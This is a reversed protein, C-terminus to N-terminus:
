VMEVLFDRALRVLVVMEPAPFIKAVVVVELVALTGMNHQLKLGMTDTEEVEEELQGYPQFLLLEMFELIQATEEETALLLVEQAVVVLLL